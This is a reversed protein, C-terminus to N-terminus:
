PWQPGQQKTKVARCLVTRVQLLFLHIFPESVLLFVFGSENVRPYTTLSTTGTCKLHNLSSVCSGGDFGVVCGSV